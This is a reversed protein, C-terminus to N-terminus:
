LWENGGYGLSYIDFEHSSFKHLTHLVNMLSFIKHLSVKVDDSYM